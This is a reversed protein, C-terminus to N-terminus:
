VVLVAATSPARLHLLPQREGHQRAWACTLAAQKLLGLLPGQQWRGLHLLLLGRLGASV